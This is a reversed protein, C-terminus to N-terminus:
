APTPSLPNFLPPQPCPLTEDSGVWEKGKGWGLATLRGEDVAEASGAEMLVARCHGM